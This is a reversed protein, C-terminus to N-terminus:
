CDVCGQSPPSGAEAGECNLASPCSAFCIEVDVQQLEPCDSVREKTEQGEDIAFCVHDHCVIHGAHGVDVLLSSCSGGQKASFGYLKPVPIYGM